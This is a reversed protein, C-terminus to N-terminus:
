YPGASGEQVRHRARIFHRHPVHILEAIKRVLAEEYRDLQGDAYAVQWLMEVVRIKEEPSFHRNILSTFPYLSVADAAEQRALREVEGTEEESLSFRERLAARLASREAAHEEGDAQLMEFLLAATALQLAHPDHAASERGADGIRQRFFTRISALM